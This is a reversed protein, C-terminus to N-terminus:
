LFLGIVAVSLMLDRSKMKNIVPLGLGTVSGLVAICKGVEDNKNKISAMERLHVGEPEDIRITQHEKDGVMIPRLLRITFSFNENNFQVRGSAIGEILKEKTSKDDGEGFFLPDIGITELVENLNTEAVERGMVKKM